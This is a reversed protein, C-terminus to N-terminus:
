YAFLEPKGARAIEFAASRSCKERNRVSLIEADQATKRAAPDTAPDDKIGNPAFPQLAKNKVHVRDGQFGPLTNNAPAAPQPISKLFTLAGARNSVLLTRIFDEQGAPIRNKYEELITDAAATDADKKAKLAADIAALIQEETADEPLGLTLAIKNMKRPTPPKHNPQPSPDSNSIPILDQDAGNRSNVAPLNTLGVRTLNVPRVRLPDKATKGSGNPEPLPTTDMSASCKRLEGGELLALGTATWRARAQLLTPTKLRLDLLWGMATTDGAPDHSAHERDILLEPRGSEEYLALLDALTEPTIVQVVHRKTGDPATSTNHIEGTTLLDFWGNKDTLLFKM